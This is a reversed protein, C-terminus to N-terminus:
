LVKNHVDITYKKLSALFFILPQAGTIAIPNNMHTHIHMRHFNFVFCESVTKTGLNNVRCGLHATQGVVASVNTAVKSDFEPDFLKDIYDNWSEENGGNSKHENDASLQVYTEINGKGADDNQLNMHASQKQVARKSKLLSIKPIIKDPDYIIRETINHSNTRSFTLKHRLKVDSSSNIMKRKITVVGTKVIEESKIKIKKKCQKRESNVDCISSDNRNTSFEQTILIDSESRYFSNAKNRMKNLNRLKRQKSPRPRLKRRNKKVYGTDYSSNKNDLHGSHTAHMKDGDELLKRNKKERHKALSLFDNKKFKHKRKIDYNDNTFLVASQTSVIQKQELSPVYFIKNQDLVNSKLSSRLHKKNLSVSRSYRLIEPHRPIGAQRYREKSLLNQFININVENIIPLAEQISNQVINRTSNTDIYSGNYSQLRLNERFGSSM